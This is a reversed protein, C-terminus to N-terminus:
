ASYVKHTPPYVLFNKVKPYTQSIRQELCEYESRGLKILTQSAKLLKVISVVHCPKFGYKRYKENARFRTAKDILNLQKFDQPRADDELWARRYKVPVTVIQQKYRFGDRYDESALLPIDEKSDAFLTNQEAMLLSALPFTRKALDILLSPDRSAKLAENIANFQEELSYEAHELEVTITITALAKLLKSYHNAVVVSDLQRLALLTHGKQLQQWVNVIDEYDYLLETNLQPEGQKWSKILEDLAKYRLAEHNFQKKEIPEVALGMMSRHNNIVDMRGFMGLTNALNFAKELFYAVLNLEKQRFLYIAMLEFIHVLGEQDRLSLSKMEEDKFWLYRSVVDLFASDEKRITYVKAQLALSLVDEAEKILEFAEDWNKHSIMLEAKRCLLISDNTELHLLFRTREQDKAYKFADFAYPDKLAELSSTDTLSPPDALVPSQLSNLHDSV